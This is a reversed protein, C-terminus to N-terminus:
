ALWCGAFFRWDFPNLDLHHRSWKAWTLGRGKTSSFGLFGSCLTVCNGGATRQHLIDFFLLFLILCTQTSDNCFLLSGWGLPQRSAWNCRRFDLWLWSNGFIGRSRNYLLQVSQLPSECLVPKLILLLGHTGGTLRQLLGLM